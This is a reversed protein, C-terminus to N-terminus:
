GSPPCCCWRRRGSRCTTLAPGPGSRPRLARHCPAARASQPLRQRARGAPTRSSRPPAPVDDHTAPYTFRGLGRGAATRGTRTREREGVMVEMPCAAGHGASTARSRRAALQSSCPPLHITRQRAHARARPHRGVNAVATKPTALPGGDGPSAGPLFRSGGWARRAPSVGHAVLAPPHGPRARLTRSPRPAPAKAGTTRPHPSGCGRGPSHQGREALLIKGLTLGSEGM